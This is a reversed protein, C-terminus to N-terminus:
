QHGNAITASGGGLARGQRVSGGGHVIRDRQAAHMVIGFLSLEKVVGFIFLSIDQDSAHSKRMCPNTGSRTQLAGTDRYRPMSARKAVIM